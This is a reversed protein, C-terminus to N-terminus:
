ATTFHPAICNRISLLMRRRLIQRRSSRIRISNRANATANCVAIAPRFVVAYARFAGALRLTSELPRAVAISKPVLEGIVMQVTTTLALAVVISLALASAEGVVGALLPELAAALGKNFRPLAFEPHAQKLAAGILRCM